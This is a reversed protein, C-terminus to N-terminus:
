KSKPKAKPSAKAKPKPKPTAKVKAKPTAKPKPSAKVKVKTTKSQTAVKKMVKSFADKNMGDSYEAVDLIDGRPSVTAIFPFGKVSEKMLQALTNDGHTGTLHQFVEHEVQAIHTNASNTEVAANWDPKMDVCFHCWKAYVIIIFPTKGLTNEAFAPYNENFLPMTSMDYFVM